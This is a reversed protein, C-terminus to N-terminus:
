RGPRKRTHAPVAHVGRPSSSDHARVEVYPLSKKRKREKRKRAREAKEFWNMEHLDFGVLILFCGYVYSVDACSNESENEFERFGVM